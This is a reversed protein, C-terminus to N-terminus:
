ASDKKSSRCTMYLMIAAFWHLGATDFLSLALASWMLVPNSWFFILASVWLFFSGFIPVGSVYRYNESSGGCLRYLPYRVYSYYLNAVTILAGVAFLCGAIGAIAKVANM